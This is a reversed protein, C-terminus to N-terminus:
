KRVGKLGYKKELELERKGKEFGKKVLPHDSRITRSMTIKPNYFDRKEVTKLFGKIENFYSGYIHYSDSIDVYRGVLVKRGIRESIMEAVLKQLDILAYMNMFAAKFADRSRWHTNMNLYFVGDKELIRFWIRQLCPPDSSLPDMRPNWTIAQARRSYPVKSLKEVVYKIQDIGKDDRRFRYNFLREHYTYSWKGSEPDIWHDHVGYVVEQRYIELDSFEGPIGALHIRPESLPELVEIIMTTDKSPPDGPKDYETKISIGKFWTELVSKEWAEPLNKGRVYIVPISM